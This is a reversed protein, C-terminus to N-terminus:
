RYNWRRGGCISLCRASAPIIQALRGAVAARYGETLPEGPLSDHLDEDLQSGWM